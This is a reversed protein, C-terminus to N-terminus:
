CAGMLRSMIGAFLLGTVVTFGALLVFNLANGMPTCAVAFPALAVPSRDRMIQVAAVV